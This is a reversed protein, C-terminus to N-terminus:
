VVSKRDTRWIATDSGSSSPNTSTQVKWLQLAKYGSKVSYQGDLEFLWMLEDHHNLNILPLQEIQYKDLPIFKDELMNTKWSTSDNDILDRVLVPRPTSGKNSFVKFNPQYPLWHDDWINVSNGNGIRWCSDKNVIWLASHISRWAFNPNCGATAKLVTSNPFYKAKFCRAILSNPNTHFRWIQKALLALNFDRLSKFGM